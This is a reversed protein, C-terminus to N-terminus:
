WEERIGKVPTVTRGIHYPLYEDPPYDALFDDGIQRAYMPFWEMFGDYDMVLIHDDDGIDPDDPIYLTNNLLHASYDARRFDYPFSDFPIVQDPHVFQIMM